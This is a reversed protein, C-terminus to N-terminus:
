DGKRLTCTYESESTVITTSIGNRQSTEYTEVAKGPDFLLTERLPESSCDTPKVWVGAGRHGVVQETATPISPDTDLTGTTRHQRSLLLSSPTVTGEGPDMLTQIVLLNEAPLYHLAREATGAIDEPRKIWRERVQPVCLARAPRKIWEPLRDSNVDSDESESPPLRFFNGRGRVTDAEKTVSNWTLPVYKNEDICVTPLFPLLNSQWVCRPIGPVVSDDEYTFAHPVMGAYRPDPRGRTSKYQGRTAVAVSSERGSFVAVGMQDLHGGSSHTTTSGTPLTCNTLIMSAYAPYVVDSVYEDISKGEVSGYQPLGRPEDTDFHTKLYKGTSGALETLWEDSHGLKTLVSIAGIVCAYGFITNESRGFYLSEGVPLCAEHLARAGRLAIKEWEAHHRAILASLYTMKAHYTLPTEPSSVPLRPQDVITGDSQVWRRATALWLPLLMSSSQVGLSDLELESAIRLLLWNNGQQTGIGLQYSVLRTLQDTSIPLEYKGDERDRYLQSVAFSNFESHGRQEPPVSLYARLARTGARTLSEDGTAAGARLAAVGFCTQAYQDTGVPNGSQPDHLWGDELTDALSRVLATGFSM